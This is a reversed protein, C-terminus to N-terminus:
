GAPVDPQAAEIDYRPFVTIVGGKPAYEFYWRDSWARMVDTGLIIDPLGPTDYLAVNAAVTGLHAETITIDMRNPSLASTEGVLGRRIVSANTGSDFLGLLTVTEGGSSVEVEVFASDFGQLQPPPLEFHIAVGGEPTSAVIDARGQPFDMELIAGTKRFFLFGLGNCDCVSLGVLAADASAEWGGVSYSFGETVGVVEMGGFALVETTAVLELGYADRLMLEYGGGTDVIAEGVPEGDIILPASFLPAPRPAFVDGCGIMSVTCVCLAAGLSLRQM